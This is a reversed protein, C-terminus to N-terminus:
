IYRLAQRLIDGARLLLDSDNDTFQELVRNFKGFRPANQYLDRGLWQTTIFHLQNELHSIGSRPDVRAMNLITSNKIRKSLSIGGQSSCMFPKTKAQRQTLRKRISHPALERNFALQPLPARKRKLNLNSFLLASETEPPTLKWNDFGRFNM